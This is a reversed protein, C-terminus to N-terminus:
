RRSEAASRHADLTSQHPQDLVAKSEDALGTLRAVEAATLSLISL